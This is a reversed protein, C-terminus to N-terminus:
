FIVTRFTLCKAVCYQLRFRRHFCERQFNWHLKVPAEDVFHRGPM